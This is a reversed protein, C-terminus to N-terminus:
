PHIASRIVAATHLWRKNVNKLHSGGGNTLRYCPSNRRGVSKDRKSADEVWGARCLRRLSHWVLRHSFILEGFTIESIRRVVEACHMCQGAYLANIVLLDIADPIVESLKRRVVCRRDPVLLEERFFQDEPLAVAISRKPVHQLNLHREFYYLWNTAVLKSKPCFLRQDIKHKTRALANFIL